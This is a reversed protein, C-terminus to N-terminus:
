AKNLFRVWRAREEPNKLNSKFPDVNGPLRYEEM